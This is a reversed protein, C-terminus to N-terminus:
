GVLSDCSAEAVDRLFRHILAEGVGGFCVGNDLGSRMKKGLCGPSVAREPTCYKELRAM